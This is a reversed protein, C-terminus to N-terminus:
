SNHMKHLLQFAKTAITAPTVVESRLVLYSRASDRGSVTTCAWAQNATATVTKYQSSCSMTSADAGGDALRTLISSWSGSDTDTDGTITDDTEISAAGFIIDGSTVSVTAASHTTANGTSGTTDAVIFSITEGAGPSVKYVQIAKQSCNVGFLVPVPQTRTDTISITGIVLSAGAGAAGPDYTIAARDTGAVVPSGNIQAAPSSFPSSGSGADNSGAIIYVLWDGSNVSINGTQLIQDSTISTANGADTITAAM